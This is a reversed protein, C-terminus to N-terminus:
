GLLCIKSKRIQYTLDKRFLSSLLSHFNGQYLRGQALGLRFSGAHKILEHEELIGILPIIVLHIGNM